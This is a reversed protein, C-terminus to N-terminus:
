GACGSGLEAGRHRYRGPSIATRVLNAADGGINDYTQLMLYNVTGGHAQLWWRQMM